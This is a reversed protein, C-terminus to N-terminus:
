RILAFLPDPVYPRRRQREAQFRERIAQIRDISASGRLRQIKTQLLRRYDEDEVWALQGELFQIALDDEAGETILTAAYQRVLPDAGFAAAKRILDVGEDRLAEVESPAYGPTSPVQHLLLMGLPYLLEHSEPFEAVGARYAAIATDVATRDITGGSYVPTVGGWIYAREFRPALGTIAETYRAVAKTDSRAVIDGTFILARVWLLDALAERYGLSMPKLYQPPPVYSVDVEPPFEARQRLVMDHAALSLVALIGLLLANMWRM